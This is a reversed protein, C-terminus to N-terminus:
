LIVSKGKKKRRKKVKGIKLGGQNWLMTIKPCQLGSLISLVILMKHKSNINNGSIAWLTSKMDERNIGWYAMHAINNKELLHFCKLFWFILECPSLALIDGKPKDGLEDISKDEREGTAERERKLRGKELKWWILFIHTHTHSM